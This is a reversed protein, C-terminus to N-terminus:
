LEGRNLFRYSSELMARREAGLQRAHPLDGVSAVRRENVLVELLSLQVNPDDATVLLEYLDNLVSEPLPQRRTHLWELGTMQEGLGPSRVQLLANHLELMRIEEAQMTIKAALVLCGLVAAAAAYRWTRITSRRVTPPAPLPPATHDPLARWLATAAEEGIAERWFEFNKNM